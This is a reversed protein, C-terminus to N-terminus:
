VLTAKACSICSAAEKAAQETAAHMQRQRLLSSLNLQRSFFLLALATDRPLMLLPPLPLFIRKREVDSRVLGGLDEIFMEHQSFHVYFHVHTDMNVAGPLRSKRETISEHCVNTENGM